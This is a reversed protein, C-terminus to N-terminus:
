LNDQLYQLHGLLTREDLLVPLPDHILPSWASAIVRRRMGHRVGRDTALRLQDEAYRNRLLITARLDRVITQALDETSNQAFVQLLRQVAARVADAGTRGCLGLALPDALIHLEGDLLPHAARLM